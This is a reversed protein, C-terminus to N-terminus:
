PSVGVSRSSNSPVDSKKDQKELDYTEGLDSEAKQRTNVCRSELCVGLVMLGGVAIGPLIYEILYSNGKPWPAGEFFWFYFCKGIPELIAIAGVIIVAWMALRLIQVQSKFMEPLVDDPPTETRKIWKVLIYRTWGSEKEIKGAQLMCSRFNYAMRIIHQRGHALIIPLIFSGGLLLLVNGTTVIWVMAAMTPAVYAFMQIVQRERDGLAGLMIEYYKLAFEHDPSNRPNGGEANPEALPSNTDDKEAM